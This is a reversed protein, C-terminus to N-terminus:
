RSRRSWCSPALPGRGAGGPRRAPLGRDQGLRHRRAPSVVGPRPARAGRAAAGGGAAPRRDAAARRRPPARGRAPGPSTAHMRHEITVLGRRELRRLAETGLAAAVQPGDQHLRHLLARQNDNLQTGDGTLAAAGAPTLEAVLARKARTGEAAGPGLTLRSRGPRRPATSARWGRPWSAGSRGPDGRAPDGEPEALREPALESTDAIEVVVGLSRQRGFPIRLLSGVTSRTEQGPGIRYDFPGKVARTRTLPEVRAIVLPTSPSTTDPQTPSM